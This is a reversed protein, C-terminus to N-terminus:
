REKSTEGRISEPKQISEKKITRLIDVVNENELKKNPSSNKIEIAIESLDM